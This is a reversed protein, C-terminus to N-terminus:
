SCFTSSLTRPRPKPPGERSSTFQFEASSIWERPQTRIFIATPPVLSLELKFGPKVLGQDQPQEAARGLKIAQCMTCPHEGDFTDSVAQLVNTRQLNDTLM